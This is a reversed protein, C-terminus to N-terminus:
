GGDHGNETLARRIVSLGEDLREDDCLSAKTLMEAALKLVAELHEALAEAEDARKKEAELASILLPIDTRAHAIFAANNNHDRADHIEVGEYGFYVCPGEQRWPEPTAAEARAKIEEIREDTLTM